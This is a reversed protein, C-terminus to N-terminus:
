PVVTVALHQESSMSTDDNKQLFLARWEDIYAAKDHDMHPWERQQVLEVVQETEGLLQFAKRVSTERKEIANRHCMTTIVRPLNTLCAALIDAVMVSLQEFLGEDSEEQVEYSLFITHAIRYMSNAAVVKAPWNLPNEMIPDKEENKFKTIIGEAKISLERLVERSNTCNLSTKSLNIDLWKKYLEVGVWCIDAAKRINILQANKSLTEDVLKVLSIGQSVSNLLQKLRHKPINPLAIAISTLTVVPLMWCNPPEQSHLTPIQDSDFQTVGKFDVFRGLLHVLGQPQKKRGTQIMNSAEQCMRKLVRNPLEAEGELLLIYSNLNLNMDDISEEVKASHRNVIREILIFCLFFPSTYLVSFVVFLKDLQLTFIQLRICFTLAFWKTNHLCKRCKGKPISFSERYDVLIQTWHSEINFATILSKWNMPASCKFSVASFWRLTPAITGIAVGIGQIVLIMLTSAKYSSKLKDGMSPYKSLLAVVTEIASIFCISTTCLLSRAMVFQPNSTEAMVWYKMMGRRLDDIVFADRRNLVDEMLVLKHQEQYKTELRRKITPVMISIAVLKVLLYLMFITGGLMHITVYLYIFKDELLFLQILVNASVTIVLIGLAVMNALIEEDRMSGLYSMFNAMAASIFLMSMNKALWDADSTFMNTNLDTLLKMAVALLTLTTANLSFYRSPFWLRKSRFGNFADAAIALTCVVSAVAIYGGVWPMAEELKEEIEGM